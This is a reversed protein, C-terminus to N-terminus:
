KTVERIEIEPPNLLEILEWNTRGSRNLDNIFEKFFDKTEKSMNETSYSAIREYVKMLSKKRVYSRKEVTVKSTPTVKTEKKNKRKFYAKRLWSFNSSVMQSGTEEKFQRYTGEPNKDLFDPVLNKPYKNGM